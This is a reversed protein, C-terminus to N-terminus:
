ATVPKRTTMANAFIESVFGFRVGVLRSGGAVLIPNHIGAAMPRGCMLGACYLLVASLLIDAWNSFVSQVRGATGGGCAFFSAWAIFIVWVPIPLITAPM